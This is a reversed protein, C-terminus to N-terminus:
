PHKWLFGLQPAFSGGLSPWRRGRLSGHMEDTPCFWDLNRNGTVNPAVTRGLPGRFWTFVLRNVLAAGSVPAQSIQARVCCQRPQFPLKAGPSVAPVTFFHGKLKYLAWWSVNVALCFDIFRGGPRGCFLSFHKWLHPLIVGCTVLHGGSRRPQGWAAAGRGHPKQRQLM